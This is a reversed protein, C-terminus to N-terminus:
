CTREISAKSFLIPSCVIDRNDFFGTLFDDKGIRGFWKSKGKRIDDRAQWVNQPKRQGSPPASATRAITLTNTRHQYPYGNASDISEKKTHMAHAIRHGQAHLDQSPDKETLSSGREVNSKGQAIDVEPAIGLASRLYESRHTTKMLPLELQNSKGAKRGESIPAFLGGAANAPQKRSAAPRSPAEDDVQLLAQAISPLLEQRPQERYRTLIDQLRLCLDKAEIRAEAAGKLMKKEVLDLVQSTITDTQRLYKRLFNHWDRVDKLVDTGDHFFDGGVFKVASKEM